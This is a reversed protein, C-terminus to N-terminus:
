KTTGNLISVLWAGLARPQRPAVHCWLGGDDGAVFRRALLRKNLRGPLSNSVGSSLWRARVQVTWPWIDRASTPTAVQVAVGDAGAVRFLIQDGPEASKAWVAVKNALAPDKNSSTSAVLQAQGGAPVSWVEIGAQLRAGFRAKATSRRGLVVKELKRARMEIQLTKEHLSLSANTRKAVTKFTHGQEAADHAAKSELAAAHALLVAQDALRRAAKVDAPSVIRLAAMVDLRGAVLCAGHAEGRAYSSFVSAKYAAFGPVGQSARKPAVKSPSKAERKPEAPRTSTKAM